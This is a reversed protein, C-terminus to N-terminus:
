RATNGTDSTREYAKFRRRAAIGYGAVLPFCYAGVQQGCTRGMTHVYVARGHGRVTNGRNNNLAWQEETLRLAFPFTPVYNILIGSNRRIHLYPRQWQEPLVKKKWISGLEMPFWCLVFFCRNDKIARCRFICLIAITKSINLKRESVYDFRILNIITANYKISKSRCM